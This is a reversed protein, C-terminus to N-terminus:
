LEDIKPQGIEIGGDVVQRENDLAIGELPRPDDVALFLRDM